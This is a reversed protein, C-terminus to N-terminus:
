NQFNWHSGSGGQHTEEQWSESVRIAPTLLLCFLGGLLSRSV